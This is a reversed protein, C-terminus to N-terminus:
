IKAATAMILQGGPLPTVAALIAPSVRAWKAGMKM